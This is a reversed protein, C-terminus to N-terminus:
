RFRPVALVVPGYPPTLAIKLARRLVMPLEDATRVEYAWKVLPAAMAAFDSNSTPDQHLSAVPPQGVYVVLPTGSIGANYLMGMGNGLGPGSHLQVFGVSQAARAYGDAAAVTVGEHLTLILDIDDHYQLEDLFAQETTGPNGFVWRVGAARLQEVFVTAVSRNM